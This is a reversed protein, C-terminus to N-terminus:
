YYTPALEAYDRGFAEICLWDLALLLNVVPAFPIMAWYMGKVVKRRAFIIWLAMDLVWLGWYYAMFALAEPRDMPGPRVFLLVILVVFPLSGTLM